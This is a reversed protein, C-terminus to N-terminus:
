GELNISVKVTSGRQVLAGAPPNISIVQEHAFGPEQQFNVFEVVLGLQEASPTVIGMEDGREVAEKTLWESITVGLRLTTRMVQVQYPSWLSLLYYLDLTGTNGDWRTFRELLFAGYANGPGKDARVTELFRREEDSRPPERHPDAVQIADLDPWHMYRGYAHERCPDFLRFEESWDFPPTGIRAVVPGTPCDTGNATM